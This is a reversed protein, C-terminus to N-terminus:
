PISARARLREQHEQCFRSSAWPWYSSAHQKAGIGFINDGIYKTNQPSRSMEKHSRSMKAEFVFEVTQM